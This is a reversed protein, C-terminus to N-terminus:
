LQIVEDPNGSHLPEGGQGNLNTFTISRPTRKFSVLRANEVQCFNQSRVIQAWFNEKKLINM